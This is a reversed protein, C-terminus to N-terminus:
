KVEVIEFDYDFSDTMFHYHNPTLELVGFDFYSDEFKTLLGKQVLQSLYGKLQQKTIGKQYLDDFCFEYGNDGYKIAVAKCANYVELEVVNLKVTKM